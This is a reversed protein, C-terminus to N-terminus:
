RSGAREKAKEIGEQTHSCRDQEEGGGTTREEVVSHSAEEFEKEATEGQQSPEGCELGLVTSNESRHSGRCVSCVCGEM